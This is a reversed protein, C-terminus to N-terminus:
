GFDDVEDFPPLQVLKKQTKGSKDTIPLDSDTMRTTTGHRHVYYLYKRSQEESQFHLSDLDGFFIALLKKIDTYASYHASLVDNPDDVENAKPIIKLDDIRSAVSFYTSPSRKIANEVFNVVSSEAPTLGTNTRQAIQTYLNVSSLLLYIDNSDPYGHAIHQLAKGIPTNIHINLLEDVSSLGAEKAYNDLQTAFGIAQFIVERKFYSEAVLTRQASFIQSNYASLTKQLISISQQLAKIEARLKKDDIKQRDYRSAINAIQTELDGIGTLDNVITALEIRNNQAFNLMSQFVARPAQKPDGVLNLGMRIGLSVVDRKIHRDHSERLDDIRNWKADELSENKRIGARLSEQHSKKDRIDGALQAALQNTRIVVDEISDEIEAVDRNLLSYARQLRAILGLKGDSKDYIFRIDSTNVANSETAVLFNDAQNRQNQNSLLGGLNHPEKIIMSMSSIKEAWGEYQMRNVGLFDVVFEKLAFQANNTPNHHLGYAFLRELDDSSPYGNILNDIAQKLPTQSFEIIIDDISVLGQKRAYVDMVECTELAMGFVAIRIIGADGDEDGFVRAALEIDKEKALSEIRNVFEVVKNSLEEIAEDLKSVDVKQKHLEDRIKKIEAMEAEYRNKEVIALAGTVGLTAGGTFLAGFLGTALNSFNSIANNSNNSNERDKLIRLERDKEKNKKDAQIRSDREQELQNKYNSIDRHLDKISEDIKVISVDIMGQAILAEVYRKRTNKVFESKSVVSSM